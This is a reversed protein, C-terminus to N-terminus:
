VLLSLLYARGTQDFTPLVIASMGPSHSSWTKTASISAVYRVDLVLCVVAIYINYLAVNGKGEEFKAKKPVGVDESPKQKRIGPYFLELCTCTGSTESLGLSIGNVYHEHMQM